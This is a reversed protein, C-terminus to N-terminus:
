GITITRLSTRIGYALGLLGTMALLIVSPKPGGGTPVRNPTPAGITIGTSLVQFGDETHMRIQLTHVGPTIAGSGDLPTGVPIRLLPCVFTDPDYDVDIRIAAALRPESFVHAEIVTGAALRACIECVIEGNEPVIVGDRTTAGRASAITVALTGDADTLVVDGRPGIGTPSIRSLLPVVEGRRVLLSSVGTLSSAEAIALAIATDESSTESTASTTTSGGGLDSVVPAAARISTIGFVTMRIQNADEYLFLLDGTVPNIAAITRDGNALTFPSSFSTGFDASVQFKLTGAEILGIIVTGDADAAVSRAQSDGAALVTTSTRAGSPLLFREFNEGSGVAYLLTQSATSTLASVSFFIDAGTAVEAGFTAAADTSRYFSVAPRDVLAYVDGTRPDVQIDSFVWSQDSVTTSLFSVGGDTSRLVQTGNQSILYVRDQGATAGSQAAIHQQGSGAFDPTPAAGADISSTWTAGDLSGRSVRMRGSEPWALYVANATAAISAEAGTTVSVRVPAAFTAGRDTSTAVHIGDSAAFTVFITGNVGASSVAIKRTTNSQQITSSACATGSTPGCNTDVRVATSLATPANASAPPPTVGLMAAVLAAVVLIAPLARRISDRRTAHESKM